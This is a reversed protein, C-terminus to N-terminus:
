LTVDIGLSYTRPFPTFGTTFPREPDLGKPMNTKEWLDNGSFYVRVKDLKVSNSWGTPLTYGIQLNKLRMYKADSWKYPADSQQYNWNDLGGNTSAKPYFSNPNEETWDKGNTLELPTVWWASGPQKIGSMVNWKGVGQLFASFDIGKWDFGVTIGYQFRISSSGINMLDGSDPDGERYESWEMVGDGDMDRFRADGVRLNGPVGTIKKYEELETENKIFGDFLLTYYSNYPQGEVYRNLGFGPVQADELSTIESQDDSLTFNVFYNFDNKVKDEWNLSLEWGKIKMKGGNVTSPAIGLMEPFEMTVLMDSTNKIFYDFSGALRYDLIRIDLGINQIAVTEWTRTPSALVGSTTARLNKTPSDPNGFLIQGGINIVSIHDYLGVNNQNGLEGYSLRLKMYDLFKLDEMFSEESVIWAGSGGFYNGWRYDKAFRSSGDRRLTGDFLYRGKYDYTLRSFYSKLAWQSRNEDTHQLEPDGLTLIPVAESVLKERSASFYKYDYEEHAGGVMVGFNHDDKSYKYNAFLNVVQHENRFLNSGASNPQIKITPVEDYDYHQIINNYYTGVNNDINISYEGTVELGKVPRFDVKFQASARNAVSEREGGAEAYAIPNTFGGFNFYRGEPTRPFHTSWVNSAQSVAKGYRSPQNIKQKELAVNTSITLEDIIDFKYKFRSFYRKNYNSGYALMGPQDLVGVSVYYNSKESKGSVSVQHTQQFAPDFMIDMWDFYGSWMKPVDSFPGPIVEPNNPDLTPLLEKLYTYAHQTVGDNGFARNYYDSQDYINAKKAWLAPTNVAFNGSYKIVPKDTKGGKTTILIVGGAARSGYISAQADKLVTLSEIDQPNINNLAQSSNEPQPIGDIVVLVGTGARSTRGRIQISNGEAGPQGGSRTVLLGPIAGQISQAVNTQPKSEFQIANVTEVAGTLTAKSKTGYGIAVVEDLGITEQQLSVNITSQDGVVVEQTRYGIFSYVLIADDPLSSITYIGDVNTITGKTTGKVYVNAGPIPEGLEDTVKGTVANQQQANDSLFSPALIIKRDTITYVVDYGSFLEDLIKEIKQNEVYLTVERDTNVLKKNYLFYFESLEEIEDLVDELKTGSFDFSLKTKQSYTDSAFTQLISVLLLFVTIRMIRFTKLLCHSDWEYFYRNKKM